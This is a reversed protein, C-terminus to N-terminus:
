SRAPTREASLRLPAVGRRVRPRPPEPPEARAPEHAGGAAQACAAVADAKLAASVDRHSLFVLALVEGRILELREAQQVVTEPGGPGGPRDQGGDKM